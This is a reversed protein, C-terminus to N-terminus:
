SPAKTLSLGLMGSSIRLRIMPRAVVEQVHMRLLREASDTHGHGNGVMEDIVSRHSSFEFDEKTSGKAVARKITDLEARVKDLRKALSAIENRRVANDSKM